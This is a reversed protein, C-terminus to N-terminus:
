NSPFLPKALEIRFNVVHHQSDAQSTFLRNPDVNPNAHVDHLFQKLTDTCDFPQGEYNKWAALLRDKAGAVSPTGEVNLKGVVFRDGEDLDFRISVTRHADDLDVNPVPTFNLYGQHCYLDRLNKLGVRIREVNFLDGEAIPVQRRLESAPYITPQTFSVQGLRYQLGPDVKAAIAVSQEGPTQAVVHCTPETVSVKFYGIQQFADRVIEGLMDTPCTRDSTTKFKELIGRVSALDEAPMATTLQPTFSQIRLTPQQQAIASTALLVLSLLVPAKMSM